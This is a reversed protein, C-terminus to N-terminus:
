LSFHRDKAQFRYYRNVLAYGLLLAIRSFYQLGGRINFGAEWPHM